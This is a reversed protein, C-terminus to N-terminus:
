EESREESREEPREGPRGEGPRGEGSRAEPRGGDGGASQLRRRRRVRWVVFAAIVVAAVLLAGVEGALHEIRSYATGAFYGLLTSGVGWVLGGLANFALFTPYPMRSMGATPPIVARLFAIFRSFFVAVAGKRRYFARASEVRARHRRLPRTTLLAPGFRRGIEYGTSDGAIAALVVILTLWWISVRDQSALAGGIIAATEGPIVFGFFLADECYVLAGVVAYVVPGSLGGLWSTISSLM